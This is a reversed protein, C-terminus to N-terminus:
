GMVRATYGVQHQVLGITGASVEAVKDELLKKIECVGKIQDLELARKHGAIKFGPLKTGSVRRDILRELGSPLLGRRGVWHADAPRTADLRALAM